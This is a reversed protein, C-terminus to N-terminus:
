AHNLERLAEIIFNLYYNDEIFSEILEQKLNPEIKLILSIIVEELHKLDNNIIGWVIDQDIGFYAHTIQNRFDVM